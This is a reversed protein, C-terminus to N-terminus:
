VLIYFQEFMQKTNFTKWIEMTRHTYRQCSGMIRKGRETKMTNWHEKM